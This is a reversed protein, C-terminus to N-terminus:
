PVRQPCVSVVPPTVHAHMPDSGAPRNPRDVGSDSTRTTSSLPLSTVSPVTPSNATRPGVTALPYQFRGNSVLSVNLFPHRSVLSRPRRSDSPEIVNMPGFALFIFDPTSFM